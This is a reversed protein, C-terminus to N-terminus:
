MYKAMECSVFKIPWCDSFTKIAFKANKNTDLPVVIM